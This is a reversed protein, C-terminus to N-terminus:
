SRPKLKLRLGLGALFIVALLATLGMAINQTNRGLPTLFNWKHLTNFSWREPKQDDPTIDVLVGTATDIFISGNFPASYDIQWVPLRKNRFDYDAGFRSILKVQQVADGGLGTYKQGWLLALKQDDMAAPQGTNASIYLAPGSVPTGTFRAHRIEEPLIPIGQSTTNLKLALRYYLEPNSGSISDKEHVTESIQPNAVVSLGTVQLGKTWEQWNQTLPAQLGTQLQKASLPEPLRIVSDPVPWGMVWLHYIGSGAFGLVPLVLLYAAFRHIRQTSHISTTPRTSKASPQVTPRYKKRRVLVLMSLGSLGMGILGLLMCSMLLIRATEVGAQAGSQSQGASLWSWTHFWQFANQAWQKATNSVGAIANTETYIYAHLGHRGEFSVKYVPLLRNVSPYANSFQDIWEVRAPETDQMKLYHRALYVAHKSDHDPLELGTQLDFYRRPKFSAETVQLLPQIHEPLKGAIVRISRAQQVNAAQLIQEIPKAGQLNMAVQPPMFVAQQVGFTTILPHLVGSLGWLVLAIASLWAM